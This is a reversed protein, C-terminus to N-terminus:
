TTLGALPTISMMSTLLGASIWRGPRRIVLEIEDGRALADEARVGTRDLGAVLGVADRNGAVQEPNGHGIGDARVVPVGHEELQLSGRLRHKEGRDFDPRQGVHDREGLVTLIRERRVFTLGILPVRDIRRARDRDDVHRRDRRGAAGAGDAEISEVFRALALLEFALANADPGPAVTACSRSGSYMAVSRLLAYTVSCSFLAIAIMLM